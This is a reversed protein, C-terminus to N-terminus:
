GASLHVRSANCEVASASVQIGANASVRRYECECEGASAKM